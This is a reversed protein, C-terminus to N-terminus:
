WIEKIQWGTPSIKIDFTKTRVSIVGVKLIFIGAFPTLFDIDEQPTTEVNGDHRVLVRQGAAEIIAVYWTSVFNDKHYSGPELADTITVAGVINEGAKLTRMITISRETVPGGRSTLGDKGRALNGKGSAAAPSRLAHLYASM